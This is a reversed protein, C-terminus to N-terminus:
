RRRLFAPIDLDESEFRRSPLPERERSLTSGKLTTAEIRQGAATPIVKGEFGTAIVTIKIEGQMRPDIVAGIIINADSDVAKAIVDAAESVEYLTLDAGGTVNFLVGKAGNISVDLLPSAIAARAAEVSREDGEARGIAMLASGSKSMVAKVDAFDLNILGPVTILEAIGQIGQHLVEDVMRFASEFSTKKEVVQLLRDNPIVILTDVKDKLNGIGEDANQRRRAGEFTFPKTVVGVTLAGVEQSIQAVVPAAGTGTGGGMGATIFVMDADKLAEYIQDSTEEAAKTGIEPKGGAGLGKTLKDGIHIKRDADTRALAQADTNIAIFEIGRVEAQIMRSVANSGGGGVGVVKINAFSVIEPISMM